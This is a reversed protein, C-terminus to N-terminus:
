DVVRDQERALLRAKRRRDAGEQRSAEADNTAILGPVPIPKSDVDIAVFTFYGHTMLAPADRRDMRERRATVLVEMSTRGVGTVEAELLVTDGLNLPLHFHLQDVSATLVTSRAHRQAAIAGCIDMWSMLVGGFLGGLSNTDSPLVIHTTSTTSEIPTRVNDTPTM